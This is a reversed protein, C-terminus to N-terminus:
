GSLRTLVKDRDVSVGLLAKEVPGNGASFQAQHKLYNLAAEKVNVDFNGSGVASSNVLAVALGISLVSESCVGVSDVLVTEAILHRRHCRLNDHERHVHSLISDIVILM